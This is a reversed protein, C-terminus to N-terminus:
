LQLHLQRAQVHGVRDDQRLRPLHQRGSAPVSPVRLETQPVFADTSHLKYCARGMLNISLQLPAILHLACMGVRAPWMCSPHATRNAPLVQSFKLSKRNEKFFTNKLKDAPVVVSATIDDETQLKSCPFFDQRLTFTKWASHLSETEKSQM